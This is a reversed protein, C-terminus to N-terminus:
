GAFALDIRAKEERLVSWYEDESLYTNHRIIYDQPHTVFDQVMDDIEDAQDYTQYILCKLIDHKLFYMKRRCSIM